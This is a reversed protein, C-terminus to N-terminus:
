IKLIRKMVLRVRLGKNVENPNSNVPGITDMYIRQMPEVTALTFPNILSTNKCQRMKQCAYCNKVFHQVDKRLTKWKKYKKLVEEVTRNVGLHGMVGGHVSQIKEHADSSIVYKEQSASIELSQM